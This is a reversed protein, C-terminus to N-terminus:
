GQNMYSAVLEQFAALEADQLDDILSYLDDDPFIAEPLEDLATAVAVGEVFDDFALPALGEPEDLTHPPLALISIDAGRALLQEVQSVIETDDVREILPVAPTAAVTVGVPAVEPTSVSYLILSAMLLLAAACATAPVAWTWPWLRPAAQQERVEALVRTVFEPRAAPGPLARLHESLRLLEMHRRACQECHQLHRAIREPRKAEGDIYSSLEEVVHKEM